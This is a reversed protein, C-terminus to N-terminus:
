PGSEGEGGTMPVFRVPAIERQSVRGEEDKEVLVLTQEVDGLPLVMRGGPALQEVLAPPVELPAAAVVIADFPAAEPWGQWADGTRTTIQDYGLEELRQASEEALEPIIEITYVETGCAALVAAGYGSGTGVDLIRDGPRPRVLQTMLAVIYPQSITQGHGIPLPGDDYARDRWEPLVFRHRPVQRMAELVVPDTISPDAYGRAELQQEVMRAREAARDDGGAVTSGDGTACALVTLSLGLLVVHMETLM